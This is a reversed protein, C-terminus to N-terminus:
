EEEKEIGESPSESVSSIVRFHDTLINAAKHLAEAPTVSGDTEIKLTLRNYDTRDGVRMNEVEMGVNLVPTFIADLAIVGVELKGIKMREVTVYGLGKDVTIEIEVEAKKDTTTFLYEDPNVIEVQSNKEIDAAFVGKEGKVKLTLVQPEDSHFKFCLKKLNLGIEVVDEMVNPITSFEHLIGKVKFQTVAAGPLSSLLVRRLSNGITTGYGPYLGEINFVGIKGNDSVKKIKVSDSLYSYQM